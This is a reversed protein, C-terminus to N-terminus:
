GDLTMPYIVIGMTPGVRGVMVLGVWCCSRAAGLAGGGNGGRECTPHIARESARMLLMLSKGLSSGRRPM